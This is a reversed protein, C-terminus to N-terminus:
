TIFEKELYGCLKCTRSQSRKSFESGPIAVGTMPDNKMWTELKDTWKDWNHRNKECDFEAQVKKKPLISKLFTSIASFDVNGKDNTQM